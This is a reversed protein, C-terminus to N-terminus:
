LYTPGVNFGGGMTYAGQAGLIVPGTGFGGGLGGGGMVMPHPGALSVQQGRQSCCGCCCVFMCMACCMECLLCDILANNTLANNSM